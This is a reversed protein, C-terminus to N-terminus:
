KEAKELAKSVADIYSNASITVGSVGDLKTNTDDTWKVWDLGQKEVVKDAIVEVQEYWEAGGEIVGNKASTEKMGYADGLVQKTTYKENAFYTNDIFVSKIVGNENVYVVATTVYTKGYSAAEVSGFYTGEKYNGEEVKECGAVGLTLVCAVAIVFLKKLSKM